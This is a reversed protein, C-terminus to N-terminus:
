ARNLPLATTYKIREMAFSSSVDAIDAHRILRKYFADYARIDAVVVRLLYDVDGSMRYFEVVEPFADIARTFAELWEDSHRSIRLSVFVDVGLNLRERDLLAVRGRVIGAKELNQIRRWCPTTSLGVRDAIESTSLSADKQLCDLIKLDIRDLAKKM